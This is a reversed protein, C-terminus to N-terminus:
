GSMWHKIYYYSLFIIFQNLSFIELELKWSDFGGNRNDSM